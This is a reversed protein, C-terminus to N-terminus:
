CGNFIREAGVDIGIVGARQTAPKARGAMAVIRDFMVLAKKNYLAATIDEGKEYGRVRLMSQTQAESSDLWEPLKPDVVRAAEHALFAVQDALLNIKM